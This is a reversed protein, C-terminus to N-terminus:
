NVSTKKFTKLIFVTYFIEDRLQFDIISEVRFELLNYGNKLSKLYSHGLM